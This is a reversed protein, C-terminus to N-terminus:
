DYRNREEELATLREKALKIEEELAAKRGLLKSYLEILMTKVSKRLYEDAITKSIYDYKDKNKELDEKLAVMNGGTRLLEHLSIIHQIEKRAIEGVSYDMFFSQNLMDHINACFTESSEEGDGLFLINKRPLDSIVFPSHTVVLVNIGKIAEFQLNKIATRVYHLFRRQLDPHFYMEVEDLMINVYKYKMLYERDDDALKGMRYDESVSDINALHYMLNSVTYAIQREGSSLGEFPIIDMDGYSHDPKIKEKKVIQFVINTTPPPLLEMMKIKWRANDVNDFVQLADEYAKDLPFVARSSQSYLNFKLKFLCRRLKLTVHSTDAQMMEMHKRFLAENFNVRFLNRSVKYYQKYTRIIKLTKYVVYQHELTGNGKPMPLNMWDMWSRLIMNYYLDFDEYLMSGKKIKLTDKMRAKTFSKYEIPPLFVAMIELDDNISRFPFQGDTDKYFLMSLLREKALINEKPVNVLGGSRMPHIVVPTQYGDNKHFVGKLWIDDETIGVNKDDYNKQWDAERFYDHYNYAYMSYNCVITYFLEMLTGYEDTKTKKVVDPDNTQEEIDLLEKTNTYTFNNIGERQYYRLKLSQGYSRIIVVRNDILVALEGYVSPVFHLREAAAFIEEEGIVAAALNNLIRIIMDVTSSKGKGNKGVIASISVSVRETDYLEHDESFINSFKVTHDTISVGEYFYLWGKRGYLAKQMCAVDRVADLNVNGPKFVRLGLLRFQAKM